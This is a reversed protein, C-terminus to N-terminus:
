VELTFLRHPWGTAPLVFVLPANRGDDSTSSTRALDVDLPIFSFFVLLGMVTTTYAVSSKNKWAAWAGITLLLVAAIAFYIFHEWTM